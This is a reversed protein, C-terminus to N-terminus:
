IIVSASISASAGANVVVLKWKTGKTLRVFNVDPVNFPNVQVLKTFPLGDQSVRVEVTGGDFNGTLQIQVDGGHHQQEASEVGNAANELLISLIFRGPM